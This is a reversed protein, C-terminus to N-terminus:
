TRGCTWLCSRAGNLRVFFRQGQLEGTVPVFRRSLRILPNKDPEIKRDPALMLKIWTLILFAGFPFCTM